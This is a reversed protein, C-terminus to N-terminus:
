CCQVELDFRSRSSFVNMQVLNWVTTAPLLKLMKSQYLFPKKKFINIHVEIVQKLVPPISSKATKPKKLISISLNSCVVILIASKNFYNIYTFSRLVSCSVSPKLKSDEIKITAYGLNKNILFELSSISSQFVQM